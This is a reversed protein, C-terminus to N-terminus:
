RRTEKQERRGNDVFEEMEVHVRLGKECLTHYVSKLESSDMERVLTIFAEMFVDKSWPCSQIARYFLDKAKSRLEKRDHCFRIYSVWLGPHNKCAESELAHGFAARTSHVNGTQIEHQIAFVRSSVCDHPEVLVVKDLISRVRDDISLRAERWAFLSLFITNQPFFNIYRTLQERLFGPRFPGQRTHYYLLRAAFQLLREHAPSGGLGRSALEHSCVSISSIASWIDGQSGSSPENNSQRTLYELLALGEAYVVAHDEEGSSLLYDRNSALLQRTKLIQASSATSSELMLTASPSDESLSCLQLTSKTLNSEELEMWASAIGLRFRDHTSITQLGLAAGLVSRAVAKNGKVWELTSYGLYLDINMHDQKLLAKATKKENEPENISEFALYYPALERVGFTRVLQKLTISIWHYQDGPIVDRIRKTSRFWRPMPFLTEPTVAMQSHDHSFQPPGSTHEDFGGTSELPKPSAETFTQESSRVLFDDQLADQIVDSSCFAPPLRCFILLADILHRQVRPIVETPFYLLLDQIDAFMIVRFPDDEAGDDMTRAPVTANRAKQQEIASWAKCGGRSSPPIAANSTKPEPPEETGGNREFAAWGQSSQEGIRTVESEWFDQFSSPIRGESQEIPPRAFTLELTAQWAATALEGYGADAIFRTARLFVYIMQEYLQLSDATAEEELWRLRSIHIQKINDYQFTSLSTQQFSTYAKWIEFSTAHKKMAEDWKKSLTKYDWIKSGERMIRVELKERQLNDVAHSYAQELMSLKIDAFSKVEAATPHRGDDASIRLLTDQHDVLQLWADIDDPHDRVQRSLEISKSKVPDGEDPTTSALSSDSDYELDSDSHEHAKSKGHISRYSPGEEGSSEELEKDGRKRKKSSRISIFDESGPVTQSREHRVRVPRSKLRGGKALISKRDGSLLSGSDHYGRLFFEDRTGSRDIRMFGDVGLIRGLGFRRYEPVNHRDNSGYRRILPDGRKDYGFVADRDHAQPTPRQSLKLQSSSTSRHSEDLTSHSRDPRHSHGRRSSRHEYDKARKSENEEKVQDQPPKPKPKFSSFKPVASAKEKSSM